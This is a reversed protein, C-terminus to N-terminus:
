RGAAQASFVSGPLAPITQPTGALAQEIARHVLRKALEIKYANDGSPSADALAAEAASGILEPSPAKGKLAAEASRARWPRAAVGGIAIRIEQVVGDSIDAMAAASVIAFAYSTRDRLKIYRAHGAFRAAGAPLTVATVLEGPRIDAGGPADETPLAYFEEVSVSRPGDPGELEVGAELAALAVCFDSPHTAICQNTWGLVAHKSTEGGIADCGAGPQRRNCRSQQDYFYLCRTQQMLNGGVTAANRLQASAGSLLAEAVAPYAKAFATNRALDSNRVLAGIRVSGDQLTEIEGLGPLRSIDVLVDPKRAGVKMLDLLNTGGALYAAGPEAGAAVADAISSPRKYDFLNM